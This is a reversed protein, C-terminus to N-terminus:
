GYCKPFARGMRMDICVRVLKRTQGTEYFNVIRIDSCYDIFRSLEAELLGAGKEISDLLAHRSSEEELSARIDDVVLGRHPTGFFITAYTSPFIHSQDSSPESEKARM